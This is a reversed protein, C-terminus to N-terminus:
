IYRRYMKLNNERETKYDLIPTPYNIGKSIWNQHRQDWKHLDTAPVTTLEPCWKKIYQGDHDFQASQLWPNLITQELPRSTTGSSNAGSVQWGFNNQAPDYDVLRTAFYREGDQWNVHMLRCLFSSVILRGRNHMYGTTNLERMCADVVPFGTKGEQWAKFNVRTKRNDNGPWKINRYRPNLAHQYIEPYKASLHYFFDRWFLQRVVGNGSGLSKIMTHYVERISVCGFKNYASLHTTEYTLQDHEGNYHKWNKIKDLIKLANERGGHVRIDPNYKERIIKGNEQMVSDMSITHKYKTLKKGIESNHSLFCEGYSYDYNDPQRINKSASTNWFPTFKTYTKGTTTIISGPPNLCIDDQSICTIGSTSCLEQIRSDREQSYKTYDPNFSISKLEPILKILDALIDFEDGHFIYLGGSGSKGVQKFQKDLDQLSECLFQVSNASYYPNRDPNIQKDTFIFIPIIHEHKKCVEILTTNDHLRYDRRFIHITYGSFKSQKDSKSM